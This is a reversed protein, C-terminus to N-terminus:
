KWRPDRFQSVHEANLAQWFKLVEDYLRRRNQANLEFATSMGNFGTTKGLLSVLYAKESPEHVGVVYAPVRYKQIELVKEKPVAIKLLGNEIKKATKVQALFFPTIEAVNELQVLYDVNPWNEHLFCPKFLPEGDHPDTLRLKAISEGREGTVDTSGM